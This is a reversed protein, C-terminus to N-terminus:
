LSVNIALGITPYRRNYLYYGNNEYAVYVDDTEYWNRAWHSPWPDVLNFWFGGYQFRPFGGVVMYPQHFIVFGHAPGFNARFRDDPIRYGVYGGRQQWTRHDAEWNESRHDQWATQQVHQQEPTHYAPQEAARQQNSKEQQETNQEHQETNKEHQETNKEQQRNNKEEQKAHEQEQKQEEPKAEEQGQQAFAPVLTGFSLVLVATRILAFTKM